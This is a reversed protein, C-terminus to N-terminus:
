RGHLYNQPSACANYRQVIKCTEVIKYYLHLYQVRNYTFYHCTSKAHLVLTEPAKGM